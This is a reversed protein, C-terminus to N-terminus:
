WKVDKILNAFEQKLQQFNDAADLYEDFTYEITDSEMQEIIEQVDTMTKLLEIAYARQPKTLKSPEILDEVNDKTITM